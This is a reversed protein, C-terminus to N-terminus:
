DGCIETIRQSAYKYASFPVGTHHDEPPTSVWPDEGFFFYMEALRAHTMGPTYSELLYDDVRKKCVAIAEELTNYTGLPFRESEDMYHFNDDVFVRYKNNTDSM